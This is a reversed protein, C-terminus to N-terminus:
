GDPAGGERACNRKVSTSPTVLSTRCDCLLCHSSSGRGKDMSLSDMETRAGDMLLMTLGEREDPVKGEDNLCDTTEGRRLFGPSLL